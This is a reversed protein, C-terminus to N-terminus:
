NSENLPIGVTTYKIKAKLIYSAGGTTDHQTTRAMYFIYQSGGIDVIGRPSVYFTQYNSSIIKSTDIAVKTVGNDAVIYCTLNQTDADADYHTPFLIDRTSDLPMASANYLSEADFALTPPAILEGDYDMYFFGIQRNGRTSSGSATRLRLYVKILGGKDIATMQSDYDGMIVDRVLQFNVADASKYLRIRDRKGVGYNCILRYPYSPDLVKFVHHEFVSQKFLLNTGSIPATIGKPIGRTWKNGDTSYALALHKYSSKSANEKDDEGFCTYYLYYMSDSIKLVNFFSFQYNDYQNASSDATSICTTPAENFSIETIKNARIETMGMNEIASQMNTLTSDLGEGNDDIVASTKTKPYLIDNRDEDIFLTGTFEGM